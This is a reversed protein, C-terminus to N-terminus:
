EGTEEHLARMGRRTRRADRAALVMCVPAAVAMVVVMGVCACFVLSLLWFLANSLTVM